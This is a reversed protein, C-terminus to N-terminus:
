TGAALTQAMVLAMVLATENGLRQSYLQTIEILWTPRRSIPVRDGLSRFRRPALSRPVSTTPIAQARSTAHYFIFNKM